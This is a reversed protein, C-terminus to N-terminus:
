ACLACLGPYKDWIVESLLHGSPSLDRFADGGHICKSCLSCLWSFVRPLCSLAEDYRGKRIAESLRTSDVVLQMMLEHLKLDMDTQGYLTWFASQWDDLTAELFNDQTLGRESGLTVCM